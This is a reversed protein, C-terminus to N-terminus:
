LRSGPECNAIEIESTPTAKNLKFTLKGSFRIEDDGLSGFLGALLLLPINVFAVTMTSKGEREIHRAILDFRFLNKGNSKHTGKLLLFLWIGEGHVRCEQMSSLSRNGRALFFGWRDKSRTEAEAM